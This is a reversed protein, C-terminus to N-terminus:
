STHIQDITGTYTFSPAAGNVLFVMTRAECFLSYQSKAKVNVHLYITENVGAHKGAEAVRNGDQNILICGVTNIKEDEPTSVTIDHKGPAFTMKTMMVNHGLVMQGRGHFSTEGYVTAANSVVSVSLAALIAPICLAKM